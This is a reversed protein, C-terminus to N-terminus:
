KERHSSTTGREDQWVTVGDILVVEAVLVDNEISGMVVVNKSTWYLDATGEMQPIAGFSLGRVEIGTGVGPPLSTLVVDALFLGDKSGILTGHASVHHLHRM